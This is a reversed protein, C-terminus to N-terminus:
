DPFDVDGSGNDGNSEPYDTFHEPIDIVVYVIVGAVAGPPISEVFWVFQNYYGAKVLAIGLIWYVLGAVVLPAVIVQLAYGIRTSREWWAMIVDSRGLYVWLESM